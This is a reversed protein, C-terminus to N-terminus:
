DESIASQSKLIVKFFYPLCSRIIRTQVTNIFFSAQKILQNKPGPVWVEFARGSGFNPPPIELQRQKTVQAPLISSILSNVCLM